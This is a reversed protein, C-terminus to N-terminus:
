SFAGQILLWDYVAHLAICPIISATLRRLAYFASGIVATMVVQRLTVSLEQGLVVNPLHFLGFLASSLLFAKTESRFASRGGVLVIGRFTMEETIGVLLMTVSMGIWYSSPADSLGDNAFNGIGALLVFVPFIWWWKKSVRETDSLVSRWWGRRSIFVIQVVLVALLAGHFQRVWPTSGIGLQDFGVRDDGALALNLGTWIGTHVLFFLFVTTLSASEQRDTAGTNDM